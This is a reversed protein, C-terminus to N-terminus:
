KNSSYVAIKHETVVVRKDGVAHFTPPALIRHNRAKKEMERRLLKRADSEGSTSSSTPAGAASGQQQQEQKAEQALTAKSKVNHLWGTRPEEDEQDGAASSSSTIDQDSAQRSASADNGARWFDSDKGPQNHTWGTRPKLNNDAEGNVPGDENSSLSLSSSSSRHGTRSAGASSTASAFGFAQIPEACLALYAAFAVSIWSVLSRAHYRPQQQGM